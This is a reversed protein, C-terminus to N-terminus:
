FNRADSIIRDLLEPYSIGAARAEKPLLSNATLGPITNIELVYIKNQRIIMDVRAFGKCGVLQYVKLATKQIRETLNKYYRAPKGATAKAFAPVIEECKGKTYKAEYDFFENKPCIEVVPLAKKGLIGCSVEIGEIYEERIIRESYKRAKEIARKLDEKRRVISVGVSSGQDAPKVVCPPGKVLKPMLIGENEILQRFMLKDMGIASALVGSGIYPIGLCDLLGQIRGDEGYKGHMAIFVAEAKRIKEIWGKGGMEVMEAEYKRKDLNKMVERASMRSVEMESSEGGWLVVVRLKGMGRLYVSDISM